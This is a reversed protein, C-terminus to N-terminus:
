FSTKLLCANDQQGHELSSNVGRWSLAHSFSACSHSALSLYFHFIPLLFVSSFNAARIHFLFLHLSLSLLFLSPSVYIFLLFSFALDTGVMDEHPLAFPSLSPIALIHSPSPPSSPLLASTSQSSRACLYVRPCRKRPLRFAAKVAVAPWSRRSRSSERFKNFICLGAGLPANPHAAPLYPRDLSQSPPNAPPPHPFPEERLPPAGVTVLVRIQM